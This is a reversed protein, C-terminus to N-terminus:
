FILVRFISFHITMYQCEKEAAPINYPKLIICWFLSNHFLPNLKSKSFRCQSKSSIRDDKVWLMYYIKEHLCKVDSGQYDYILEFVVFNGVASYQRLDRDNNRSNERLSQQWEFYIKSHYHSDITPSVDQLRFKIVVFM